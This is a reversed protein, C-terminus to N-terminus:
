ARRKQLVTANRSIRRYADRRPSAGLTERASLALFGGPIVSDDLLQHVRRQLGPDFYILVNACVVLHFENFSADTVLNHEAWTIARRLAPKFVASGGATRTHPILETAGGSSVYRPQAAIVDTERYAGRRGVALSDPNMDTAYLHCRDLLGAEELLVALSYVEEGTACGALWVRVSPYTRLLPFVETRLVVYSAPERFLATVHVGVASVLRRMAAHDHLVREQLGSITGVKEARMANQVGRRLAARSYARFDFGYRRELGDLLLALEVAEVEDSAGSRGAAVVQVAM